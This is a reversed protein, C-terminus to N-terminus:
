RRDCARGDAERRLRRAKEPQRALAAESQLGRGGDRFRDLRQNGIRGPRFRKGRVVNRAFMKIRRAEGLM